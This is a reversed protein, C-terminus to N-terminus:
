IEAGFFNSFKRFRKLISEVKEARQEVSGRLIIYPIRRMKLDAIIQKHFIKRKQDGSRDWTDDYPIDDDCLFFIDYRHSNELAVRELYEPARGHYDLAYMYTTIANTDCFMYKNTDKLLKDEREIHGKTIEDFAEFTIRRDVQHETWYDRGYESAFVTNYKKALYETLTSKGTSMAGVFVVRTIMDSYVISELYERYKYPNERIMTGSIHVKERKNDVRRDIANLARSVHGGYDESSYFHTIRKGNLMEIIYKEEEIEKERENSYGKPGDWCEIVEIQPYMQKIWGARVTLPIDIVDTDYILVVVEDMEELALELIYQHGKHLPAFKGLTM